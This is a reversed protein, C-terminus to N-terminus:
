LRVGPARSAPAPPVAQAMWAEHRLAKLRASPEHLDLRISFPGDWDQAKRPAQPHDRHVDSEYVDAECSLNREAPDMELVALSVDWRIRNTKPDDTIPEIVDRAIESEKQFVMTALVVPALLGKEMWERETAAFCEEGQKDPPSSPQNLLSHDHVGFGQAWAKLLAPIQGALNKPFRAQAFAALEDIAGPHRDLYYTFDQCSPGQIKEELPLDSGIPM